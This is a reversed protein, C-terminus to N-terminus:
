HCASQHVAYVDSLTHKDVPADDCLRLRQTFRRPLVAFLPPMWADKSAVRWVLPPNLSRIELRM